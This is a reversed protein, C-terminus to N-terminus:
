LQTLNRSEEKCRKVERSGRSEGQSRKVGRSGEQSRRAGGPEDQSGKTCIQEEQNSVIDYCLFTIYYDKNVDLRETKM